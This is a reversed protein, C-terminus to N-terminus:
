KSKNKLSRKLALGKETLRYRQRTSKLSDPQTMEIYGAEMAPNLYNKRFNPVHRLDLIEMLEQRSQSKSLVRILRKVLEDVHDTVYDTVHDTPQPQLHIFLSNKVTIGKESLRYKQNSSNPKDPITMVIYGQDLAPLLYNERFYERHKLQLDNQIEASKMEGYIVLLVRRIGEDVQGTVHDTVQGTSTQRKDPLYLRQASPRWLTVKFGEELEIIPEILDAEKTLRFIEGTDTGFREIYGAQYMCEALKPNTPYSSHEIKLKSISLEPALRGPNAVELRDAFLMVQVSGNSTYDRHAIANVIAETVAARPIEYEIPTQNSESRTGVSVNIKSLVFDVAQDIQEFVDGQFVKHAPIPKAVELGHYHACKVIATPFFQQPKSAFVLLASNVLQSNQLLNLHSLVKEPSGERLPFGRRARAIGVFNEIKSVDLDSFRATPHLSDDFSTFQILGKDKLLIVLAKDVETILESITEFRKYTVENQIKSIFAKEKEHRVISSGGKIFALRDLQLSTAHDYEHETPSVGDPDEYGYDVGLMGLYIQSQGVEDMYVKNPSQSTAPLHEFLVPEFFTSLLADAKFHEYLALRESAFEKQASSIFVKFQQM